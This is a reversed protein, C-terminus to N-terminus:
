PGLEKKVHELYSSLGSSLGGGQQTRFAQQLQQYAKQLNQLEHEKLEAIKELYDIRQQFEEFKLGAEKQQMETQRTSRSVASFKQRISAAEEEARLRDQSEVELRQTLAEVEAEWKRRLDEGNDQAGQLETLQIRYSELQQHHQEGQERLQSAITLAEQQWRQSERAMVEQQKLLDAVVQHQAAVQERAEALQRDGSIRAHIKADEQGKLQDRLLRMEQERTDLMLRLEHAQKQMIFEEERAEIMIEKLQTQLRLLAEELDKSRTREASLAQEWSTKQHELQDKAASASQGQLQANLLQEELLSKVKPWEARERLLRDEVEVVRDRWERERSELTKEFAAVQEKFHDASRLFWSREGRLRELEVFREAAEVGEAVRQQIEQELRTRLQLVEEDKAKRTWEAKAKFEELRQTMIRQWHIEQSQIREQVEAALATREEEQQRELGQIMANVQQLRTMWEQEKGQWWQQQDALKKEYKMRSFELQHQWQIKQDEWEQRQHVLQAQLTQLPESAEEEHSSWAAEVALRKDEEATKKAQRMEEGLRQLASRSEELETVVQATAAVQRSLAEAHLDELERRQRQLTQQFLAHAQEREDRLRNSVTEEVNLNQQSVRAMNERLEQVVGTMIMLAEEKEQLQVTSLMQTQGQMMLEDLTKKMAELQIRLSANEAEWHQRLSELESPNERQSELRTRATQLEVQVEQFQGQLVEMRSQLAERSSETTEVQKRLERNERGLAEREERSGDSLDLGPSGVVPADRLAATEKKMEEIQAQAGELMQQLKQNEQQLAEAVMASVMPRDARVEPSPRSPSAELAPLISPAPPPSVSSVIPGEAMDSTKVRPLEPTAGEGPIMGRMLDQFDDVRKVASSGQSDPPSGGPKKLPPATSSIKIGQAAPEKPRLARIAKMWEEREKEVLAQIDVGPAPPKMGQPDPKDPKAM